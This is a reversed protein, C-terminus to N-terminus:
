EGLIYSRKETTIKQHLVNELETIKNLQEVSIIGENKYVNLRDIIYNHFKAILALEHEIIARNRMNNVGGDREYFMCKM